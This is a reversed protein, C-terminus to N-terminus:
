NVQDKFLSWRMSEVNGSFLKIKYLINVNIAKGSGCISACIIYYSM